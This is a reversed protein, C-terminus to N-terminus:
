VATRGDLSELTQRMVHLAAADDLLADDTAADDPAYYRLEYAADHLVSWAGAQADVEDPLADYATLFRRITQALEAPEDIGAKLILRLRDFDDQFNM